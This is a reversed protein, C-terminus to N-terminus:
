NIKEWDRKVEGKPLVLEKGNSQKFIYHELPIGKYIPVTKVLTVTQKTTPNQYELM